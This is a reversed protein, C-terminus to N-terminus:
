LAAVVAEGMEQTGVLQCGPAMIDGTRLGQGLVQGVAGEIR